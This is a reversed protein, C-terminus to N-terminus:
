NFESALEKGTSPRQGVVVLLLSNLSVIREVVAWQHPSVHDSRYPNGPAM